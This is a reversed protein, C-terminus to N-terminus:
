LGIRALIASAGGPYLFNVAAVILAIVGTAGVLAGIINALISSSSGSPQAAPQGPQGDVGPKGPEGKDGTVKGLNQTSGDTYTLLLEGNNNIEAKAVGRGDAGPQGPQGDAGTVKGLNQATGDTYTLVLEGADNIETKDIGKGDSGRVTGLTERSESTGDTYIAVLEGSPTLELRVLTRAPHAPDNQETPAATDTALNFGVKIPDHDSSRFPNDGQFFDQINYNRRSYEFAVSEDSNINWVAADKVLAMAAENGMVHDLSGLQAAFQYSAKDFDRRSDINTFGEQELHRVADEKSYSNLDGLIFEPKDAWDAQKNLHDVLATAQALRVQANNGQGDGKDTDGSAVSGKSKFHNVVAVFSNKGSDGVPKFEQALPQRATGTFAPDDFIRSEGVPEVKSKNYIFAVRIYDENTGLAAPSSVYAWNGGASNLADVLKALAEDRRAVDGTVRSTNEIEELGLVSVDLRNIAGVIKAQQDQFAQQSYAGRVKCGNTSVPQGNIDTYAKCGAETEGLTTFYNLVNFSAISYDGQVSAPVDLTAARSDQWTIPLDAAENKGTIPELPQFRWANNAFDVVVDTQFDVHDGTRLSKIGQDSTLLYPLPTNKDKTLYNQTRGDDLYVIESDQRAQLANAEAGPLVVDTPTRHATDGPALGIEGYQNLTYNNTVTYTGTPRVIMGEYPERAEPGAPLADIQIAAPAALPTDLGTISAATIQTATYFEGVKGTVRVSAGAAPYDTRNGMYVFIGDSADGPNKAAQGTGATQLYFGKKGGENYVATVVGETTVTKDVLPSADGTGQIEAIPTVAAPGPEVPAPAEPAPDVPTGVGAPAGSNMPTPAAVTFDAANNDTDVGPQIRQVSTANATKAAAASEASTATGWGVLDVQTGSADFLVAIAETAGFTLKGTADPTPLQASPTNGAAGQVLYYGGAPIIGSLTAKNGTGNKASRQDIVWGTLDIPANTPNYLEVFDNSYVSGANGGGGYVENIVVNSGDPAAHAPGTAVTVVGAAIAIATTASLARRTRPM